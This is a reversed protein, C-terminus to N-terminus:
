RPTLRVVQAAWPLLLWLRGADDPRMRTIPGHGLSFRDKGFRMAAPDFTSVVAEVSDLTVGGVLMQDRWPAAVVAMPRRQLDWANFVKRARDVALVDATTRGPMLLRGTTPDLTMSLLAGTLVLTPDVGFREVATFSGLDVWVLGRADSFMVAASSPGVLVLSTATGYGGLFLSERVSFDEGDVAVLLGDGDLEGRSQVFLLLYAGLNESWVIERPRRHEEGDRLAVGVTASMTLQGDRDFRGFAWQGASAFTGVFAGSGADTALRQLCKPAQVQRLTRPSAPDLLILKMETPNDSPCPGIAEETDSAVVAVVEPTVAIDLAYGTFASSPFLQSLRPIHHHVYPEAAFLTVAEADFPPTPPAEELHLDVECPNPEGCTYPAQSTRDARRTCQWGTAEFDVCLDGRSYRVATLHGVGCSSLDLELSCPGAWVVKPDCRDSQCRLEVNVATDPARDPCARALWTATLRPASEAPESTVSDAVWTAHWTPPPLPQECGTAIRLAEGRHANFADLVGYAQLQATSYGIFLRQTDSRAVAPLPQDAAWDVFGSSAAVRGKDLEILAVYAVDAPVDVDTAPTSPCALLPALLAWCATRRVLM